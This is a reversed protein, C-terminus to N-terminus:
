AGSRGRRSRWTCGSGPAPAYADTLSQAVIWGTKGRIWSMNSVDYGRVQYVGDTVQFLGHIGNLKAQRWLSPNVSAPAEGSVFAFLRQSWPRGAATTVSMEPDSAVLGRRADEFDAEEGLALPAGFAANAAATVPSPATFGDDPAPADAATAPVSGADGAAEPGRAREGCALALAAVALLTARPLALRRARM